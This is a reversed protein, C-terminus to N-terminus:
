KKLVNEMGLDFGVGYGNDNAVKMIEIEEESLNRDIRDKTHYQVALIM